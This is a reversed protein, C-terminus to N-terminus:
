GHSEEKVITGINRMRADYSAVIDESLNKVDNAIGM